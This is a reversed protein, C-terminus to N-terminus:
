TVATPSPSGWESSRGSTTRGGVGIVNTNATEMGGHREGPAPPEGLAESVNTSRVWRNRYWEARGDRLRLGHVMADGTFWHYEGRPEFQPNPGTRYLTGNLDKPIEGRVVLDFDDESRIPAFNGSLYPNIRVDGDM